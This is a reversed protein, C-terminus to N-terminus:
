INWSHDSTINLSSFFVRSSPLCLFCLGYYVSLLASLYCSKTWYDTLKWYKQTAEQLLLAINTHNLKIHRSLKPKRWCFYFNIFLFVCKSLPTRFVHPSCFLYKNKILVYINSNYIKNLNNKKSIKFYM